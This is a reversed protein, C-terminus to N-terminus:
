DNSPITLYTFSSPEATKECCVTHFVAYRLRYLFFRCTLQNESPVGDGLVLVGLTSTRRKNRKYNKIIVVDGSEEQTVNLHVRVRM